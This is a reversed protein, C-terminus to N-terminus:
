LQLAGVKKKAAIVNAIMGNTNFLHQSLVDSIEGLIGPAEDPVILQIEFDRCVFTM